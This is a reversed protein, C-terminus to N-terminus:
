RRSDNEWGEPDTKSLDIVRTRRGDVGVARSYLDPAEVSYGEHDITYTYYIGECDGNKTVEWVGKDKPQLHLTGLATANQEEDSGTAFLNVHVGKATPAWVKWTTKDKTYVSGLDSGTYTYEEEFLPNDFQKPDM